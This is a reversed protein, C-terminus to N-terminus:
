HLAELVEIGSMGPMNLDLLVLDPRERLVKALGQDGMRATSLRYGLPGLLDVLFSSIEIGDDIILIREGAM